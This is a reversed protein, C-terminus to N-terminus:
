FEYNFYNLDKEFHKEVLKRAQPSYHKRYHGSKIKTKNVVPVPSSLPKIGLKAHVIKMDPNINELKGVYDVLVKGDKDSIYQFLTTVKNSGFPRVLPDKHEEVVKMYYPVFKDMDMGKIDNHMFHNKFITAYYFTSLLFNFPNRVFTFKFMENFKDEKGHVKYHHLIETPAVHVGHLEVGQPMVKRVSNGGCKYLHFFISM